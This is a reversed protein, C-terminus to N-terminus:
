SRILAREKNPAVDSGSESGTTDSFPKRCPQFRENPAEDPFKAQLSILFVAPFSGRTPFRTPVWTTNTVQTFTSCPQGVELDIDKSHSFVGLWTCREGGRTLVSDQLSCMYVTGSFSVSLIQRCPAFWAANLGSQRITGMGSGWHSIRASSFSFLGKLMKETSCLTIRRLGEGVAKDCLGPSWFCKMLSKLLTRATPWVLFRKNYEVESVRKRLLLLVVESLMVADELVTARVPQVDGPKFVWVTQCSMWSGFLSSCFTARFFSWWFLVHFITLAQRCPTFQFLCLLTKSCGSRKFFASKM